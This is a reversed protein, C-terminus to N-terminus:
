DVSRCRLHDTIPIVQQQSRVEPLERLIGGLQLSLLKSRLSKVSKNFQRRDGVSLVPNRIFKITTPYAQATAATSRERRKPDAHSKAGKASTLGFCNRTNR